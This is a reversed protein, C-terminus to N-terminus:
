GLSVSGTGLNADQSVTLASNGVLDFLGAFGSNTGTLTTAAANNLQVTSGAVGSLTNALPGSLGNLLLQATADTLNVNAASTGLNNA